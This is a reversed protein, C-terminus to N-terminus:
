RDGPYVGAWVDWGDGVGALTGESVTRLETEDSKGWRPKLASDDPCSQVGGGWGVCVM